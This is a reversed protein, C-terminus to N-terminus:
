GLPAFKTPHSCFILHIPENKPVLVREKWTTWVCHPLLRRGGVAPKVWLDTNVINATSTKASLTCNFNYRQDYAGYAVLKVRMRKILFTKNKEM